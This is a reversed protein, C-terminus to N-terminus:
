FQQGESIWQLLVLLFFSSFLILIVAHSLMSRHVFATHQQLHSKLVEGVCLQEVPKLASTHGFVFSLFQPSGNELAEGQLMAVYALSVYYIWPHGCGPKLKVMMAPLIFNTFHYSSSLPLYSCCSFHLILKNKVKISILSCNIIGAFSAIHAFM